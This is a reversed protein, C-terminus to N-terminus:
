WFLEVSKKIVYWLWFICVLLPLIALVTIKDSIASTFNSILNLGGLLFCVCSFIILRPFIFKIYGESDKCNDININGPILLINKHLRKKTRMFYCSYFCYISGGWILADFIVLIDINEM